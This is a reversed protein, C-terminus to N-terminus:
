PNHEENLIHRPLITSSTVKRILKMTPNYELILVPKKKKTNELISEPKQTKINGTEAM